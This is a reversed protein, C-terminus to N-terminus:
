FFPADPSDKLTELNDSCVFCKPGLGTSVKEWIAKTEPHQFSKAPDATVITGAAIPIHQSPCECANIGRFSPHPISPQLKADEAQMQREHKRQEANDALIALYPDGQSSAGQCCSCPMILVCTNRYLACTLIKYSIRALACTCAHM